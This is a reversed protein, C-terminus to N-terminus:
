AASRDESKTADVFEKVPIKEDIFPKFSKVFQRRYKKIASEDDLVKLMM